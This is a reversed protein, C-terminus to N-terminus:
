GSRMSLQTRMRRAMLWVVPKVRQGTAVEYLREPAIDLEGNGWVLTGADVEFRRFYEIDSFPAFVTRDSVYDALDVM